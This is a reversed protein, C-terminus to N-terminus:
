AIRFEALGAGWGKCGTHERRLDARGELAAGIAKACTPSTVGEEMMAMPETWRRKLFVISMQPGNGPFSYIFPGGDSLGMERTVQPLVLPLYLSLELEKRDQSM